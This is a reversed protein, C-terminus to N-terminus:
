EFTILNVCMIKFYEDDIEKLKEQIDKPNDAYAVYENKDNRYIYMKKIYEDLNIIM